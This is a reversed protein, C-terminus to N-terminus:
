KVSNIHAEVRKVKVGTPAYADRVEREVREKLEGTDAGHFCAFYVDVVVGDKTNKVYSGAMDDRRLIANQIDIRKSVDTMEAVGECNSTFHTAIQALARPAITVLGLSDM